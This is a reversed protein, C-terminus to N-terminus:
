VKCLTNFGDDTYRQGKRNCFLYVSFVPRRLSKAKKIVEALATTMTSGITIDKRSFPYLFIGSQVSKIVAISDSILFFPKDSVSISVIANSAPFFNPIFFM